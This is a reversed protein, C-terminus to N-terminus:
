IEVRELHDCGGGDTFSKLVSTRLGSRMSSISSSGPLRDRDALLKVNELVLEKDAARWKSLSSSKTSSLLSSGAM